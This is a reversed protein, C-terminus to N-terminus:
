ASPLWVEHGHRNSNDDAKDSISLQFSNLPLGDELDEQFSLSDFHSITDSTDQNAVDIPLQRLGNERQLMFSLLSSLQAKELLFPLCKVAHQEAALHVVTSLVNEGKHRTSVQATLVLPVKDRVSLVAKVVPLIDRRVAPCVINNVIFTISHAEFLSRAAGCAEFATVITTVASTDDVYGRACYEMPTLVASDLVHPKQEGHEFWKRLNADSTKAILNGLRRFDRQRLAEDLPKTASLGM